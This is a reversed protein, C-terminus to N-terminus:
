LFTCYMTNKPFFYILPPFKNHNDQTRGAMWDMPFIYTHIVCDNHGLLGHFQTALQESATADAFASNASASAAASSSSPPRIATTSQATSLSTTPSPICRHHGASSAAFEHFKAPFHQPRLCIAYIFCFKVFPFALQWGLKLQGVGDTYEVVEPRHAVFQRRVPIRLCLRRPLLFPVFHRFIEKANM